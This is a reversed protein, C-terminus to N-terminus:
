LIFWCPKVQLPQFEFLFIVYKPYIVLHRYFLWIFRASTFISVSEANEAGKVIVPANKHTKALCM